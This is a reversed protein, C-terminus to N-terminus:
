ANPIASPATPRAVASPQVPALHRRDCRRNRCPPRQVLSAIGHDHRTFLSLHDAVWHEFSEPPRGLIHEVDPTVVAPQAVTTALLSAHSDAFEASLGSGIFHEHLRERPVEQYRLRRDLVSGIIEVLEAHTHARAGTLPIRQDVLQETLIARAAVAAVDNEAIPTSSAAACPGAVVDGKQIQASWMGAFNSAFTTPHLSVWEMGSDIALEEVEKNRDDANIASLAVLRRVGTWWAMEAVIPAEDGLARSNLFVVSAGPLALVASNVVKVGSPFKSREPHRTVARVEVGAKALQAVLPRGINGTAGMVVIAMMHRPRGEFLQDDIFWM